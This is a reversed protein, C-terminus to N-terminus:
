INEKPFLGGSIYNSVTKGILIPLPLSSVSHAIMETKKFVRLLEKLM